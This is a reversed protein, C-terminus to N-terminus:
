RFRLEFPLRAIPGRDSLTAAFHLLTRVDAPLLRAESPLARESPDEEQREMLTEFWSKREPLVVLTVEQGPTLKARERALGIATDLGGLRDVLGRPLAEAGTWVRGQAIADLEEYTKNRGKAAKQVFDEYFSAMLAHVRAREADDWPRYDSFLAANKGRTVIEESLGIKDYLGRLSFKGGFVGISGTITGPEAVIQDGAMAIYYGGSAAVDGMSVIVPKQKRCLEMERWIVDSATGSGGPSDVRLVVARISSDQRAERLARAITDSGVFSGGLGSTGSTGSVIQGVAYVLALKPRRDLGFSSQSGQVYRGPTVRDAGKQRRDLEDMYLLEDVLGAKLAREADYPGDDILAKIEDESKGRAEALATVYQGYLSDLMAETQERHPATFGSETFQNPANKYKGVGVFQAQVGLKDLTGKFFTVEAALGSIDLIATPVAYVKSCASALYYEKNSCFELHAFAPKGSKRFRAVADRLEQVKGFGADSLGGVRLVVSKIRPDRGARDLSEVLTRLSPPRRELLRSLDSAPPDEPIEGSLNLALYSESSTWVTRARPGRLLLALAGVAAAGLSVAAVAAILIWATRKKV